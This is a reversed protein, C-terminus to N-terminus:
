GKVSMLISTIVISMGACVIMMRYLRLRRCAKQYRQDFDDDDDDDNKDGGGGGGDQDDTTSNKRLPKQRGSLIGVQYPGMAKFLILLLMWVVVIVFFITSSYLVGKMYEKQEEATGEMLDLINASRGYASHFFEIQATNQFPTAQFADVFSTPITCESTM